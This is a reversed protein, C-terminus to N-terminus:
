FKNFELVPPMNRKHETKKIMKQVKEVTAADIELEEM